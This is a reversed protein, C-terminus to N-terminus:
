RKLRVTLTRTVAPTGDSPVYTVRVAVKLSKRQRKLAKRLKRSLQVAVKVPGTVTVTKAATGLTRKRGMKLRKATKRDVTARASLRGTKNTNLLFELKGRLSATKFRTTAPSESSTRNSSASPPSSARAVM